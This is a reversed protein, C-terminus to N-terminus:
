SQPGFSGDGCREWVKLFSGQGTVELNKTMDVQCSQLPAHCYYNSGSYIYKLYVDLYLFTQTSGIHITFHLMVWTPYRTFIRARDQLIRALDQLIRALHLDQCSILWSRPLIKALNEVQTTKLMPGESTESLPGVNSVNSKVIWIPLIGVKKYMYKFNRDSCESGICCM